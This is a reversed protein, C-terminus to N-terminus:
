LSFDSCSFPVLHYLVSAEEVPGFYRSDFSDPNYDSIAWLGSTYVGFAEHALPAGTKSRLKPVTNELLRNSVFIGIPTLVIPTSPTARYLTKLIPQSGNPCEGPAVKLGADGATALVSQPLCIGAYHSGVSAIRYLGQPESATRNLRLTSRSLAAPALGVILGLAIVIFMQGSRIM